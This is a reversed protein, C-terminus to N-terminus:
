KRCEFRDGPRLPHGLLFEAARMKKGGAKQVVELVLTGEGCAVVIGDNGTAVIEGPRGASGAGVRAQWIKLPFGSIHARAGPRPNFARVACDIAQAEAGWSIEAEQGELKPAYIATDESQPVAALTGLRL